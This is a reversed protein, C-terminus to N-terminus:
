PTPFGTPWRPYLVPDPEMDVPTGTYYAKLDRV